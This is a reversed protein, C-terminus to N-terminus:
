EDKTVAVKSALCEVFISDPDATFVETVTKKGFRTQLAVTNNGAWRLGDNIVISLEDAEEIIETFNYGQSEPKIEVLGLEDVSDHIRMLRRLTDEYEKDQFLKFLLSLIGGVLLASSLENLYPSQWATVALSSKYTIALLGLIILVSAIVYIKYGRM